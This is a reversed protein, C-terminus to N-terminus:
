TSASISPTETEIAGAASADVTIQQSTTGIIMNVDLRLHQRASLEPNAILYARFGERTIQVQYRGPPIDQAEFDGNKDSVYTTSTGKDTNTIVVHASAIM